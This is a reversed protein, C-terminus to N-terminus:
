VGLQQFLNELAAREWLLHHAKTIDYTNWNRAPQVSVRPINRAALYAIPNYEHTYVQLPSNDWGLAQLTRLFLRTKPQEYNLSEVVWITQQRLHLAFASLRALRKEKDNLKIAYDRPVPGHITGGGRRIPNRISGMRARGTGKQRYLKRKSGQVEGRTKTKHTGQRAEALIRKVDLYILHTNPEFNLLGEPVTLYSNTPQGDISFIPLQM